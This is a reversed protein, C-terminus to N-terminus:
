GSAVGTAGGDVGWRTPELLAATAVGPPYWPYGAWGHVRYYLQVRLVVPEPGFPDFHLKHAFVAVPREVFVIRQEYVLAIMQRRHVVPALHAVLREFPLIAQLCM